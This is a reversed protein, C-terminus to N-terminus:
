NYIKLQTKYHYSNIMCTKGNILVEDLLPGRLIGEDHRAGGSIKGKKSIIIWFYSQHNCAIKEFDALLM